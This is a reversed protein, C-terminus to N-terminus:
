PVTVRTQEITDMKALAFALLYLGSLLRAAPQHILWVSEKLMKLLVLCAFVSSVIMMTLMLQM